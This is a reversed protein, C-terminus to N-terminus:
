YAFVVLHFVIKELVSKQRINVCKLLYGNKKATCNNKM